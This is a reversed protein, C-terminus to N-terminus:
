HGFRQLADNLERRAAASLITEYLGPRQLLKVTVPLCEIVLFLMLLLLRADSVTSNGPAAM